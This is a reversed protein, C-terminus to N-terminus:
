GHKSFGLTPLNDIKKWFVFKIKYQLNITNTKHIKEIKINNHM